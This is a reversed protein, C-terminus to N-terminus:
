KKQVSCIVIGFSLVSCVRVLMVKTTVYEKYHEKLVVRHRSIEKRTLSRGALPAAVFCVLCLNKGTSSYRRHLNQNIKTAARKVVSKPKTDTFALKQAGDDDSDAQTAIDTDPDTDIDLTNEFAVKKTHDASTEVTSLSVVVDDDYSGGAAAREFGEKKAEGKADDAITGAAININNNEPKHNNRKAVNQYTDGLYRDLSGTDDGPHNSHAPARFEPLTSSLAFKIALIHVLLSSCRVLVLIGSQRIVGM